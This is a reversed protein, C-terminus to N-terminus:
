PKIKNAKSFYFEAKDKEGFENYLNAMTLVLNKDNPNIKYAKEFYLLANKKDGITFYIKGNNVVPDYASPFKKMAELNLEISKDFDKQLFYIEGLTTYAMLNYPDIAIVKKFCRIAENSKKLQNFTIGAKLWANTYNSDIEVAKIFAPLAAGPKNLLLYTQGLDHWAFDAKPYLEVAKSFHKIAENLYKDKEIQNKTKFSKNVLQVALLNNAQVSKELYKIDHRMLTVHDKWLFNRSFTKASFLLLLVIIIVSKKDTFSFRINKSNIDTRSLKLLGYGLAICFGTSAVFALRDAMVGAVPAALNSFASICLIYFFIGYSYVPHKKLLYLCSFILLTYIIMSIVSFINGWDVPEIQAYGYYFGLHHPFVLLQLYKGLVIFSTATKISLPDSENVPMEVFNLERGSAPIFYGPNKAEVPIETGTQFYEHVSNGRFSPAHYWTFKNFNLYLALPLLLIMMKVPNTIIRRDSFHIITLIIGLGSFFAMWTKLESTIAYSVLSFALLFICIILRSEKIFYLYSLFCLFCLVSFISFWEFPSDNNLFLVPLVLVVSIISKIEIKKKDLFYSSFLVFLVFWSLHKLEYFFSIPGLFLVIVLLLLNKSNRNAHLFILVLIFLFILAAIKLDYYIFVASLIITLPLLYWQFSRVNISESEVLCLWGKKNESREKNIINGASVKLAAIIDSRNIILYILVPVILILSAFAIRQWLISFPWFIGAILTLPLTLLIIRFIGARNFLVLTVPILLVFPIISKKSLLGFLFFFIFLLYYKLKGNESFRLSYFLSLIGGLFCLLEDRNKIGAVAETHIPHAIFLLTIILPLLYNYKNFLNALTLFLALCLLVYILVNIFHSVHVNDGFFQHELAFTTLTVPRYDYQNGAADKYYPSAFIEPIASVGKSTLLHNITVLEDDLNYDNPITNVYLLFSFVAIIVLLTRNLQQATNGKEKNLTKVSTM